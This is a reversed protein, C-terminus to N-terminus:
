ERGSTEVSCLAEMLTVGAFDREAFSGVQTSRNDSIYNITYIFVVALIVLIAQFFLKRTKEM